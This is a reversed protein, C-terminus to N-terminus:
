WPVPHDRASPTKTHMGLFARLNYRSVFTETLNPERQRQEQIYNIIEHPDPARVDGLNRDLQGFYRTLKLSLWQLHYVGKLGRFRPVYTAYTAWGPDYASMFGYHQQLFLVLPHEVPLIARYVALM